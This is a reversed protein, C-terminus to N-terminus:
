TNSARGTWRPTGVWPRWTGARLREQEERHVKHIDPNSLSSRSRFEAWEAEDRMYLGLVNMTKDFSLGHQECFAACDKGALTLRSPKGGTGVHWYPGPPVQKLIETITLARRMM